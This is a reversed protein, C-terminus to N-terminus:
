QALNSIREQSTRLWEMFEDAPVPKSFLYGQAEDCGLGKLLRNQEGTEVGEAVSRINLSRALAIIAQVISVDDQDYPTDSVFSRDIKLADIPFRKLYTMSSYGTGFDDVSISVGMHHLQHMIDAAMEINEVLLTETIEVELFNALTGYQNQLERIADLTMQDRFQRASLNVSVSIAPIGQDILLQNFECAQKLVWIGVDVIQRSEELVPIFKDPMMLGMTKSHWRLLAEMGCVKETAVNIRPQYYVEFENNSLAQSLKNQIELYEVAHATMDETFYQYCNGGRAKARYMAIDANKLLEDISDGDDPFITIGISTSPTLEYSEVFISEALKEIVKQAIRNIDDIDEIDEMVITFEDGGLRAITDGKRICLGIREAVVRLLQDGVIHGLSDNVHKFKDMDLFLVAVKKDDRESKNIAHLLRDRLLTRNPLDTLADHTAMFQLREQVRIRESIDKGTAVYNTVEGEENRIPTITKEEYYLSGDKRRNIFVDSFVEGKKITTWLRNYFEKDHEGSKFIAPTNGIVDEAAYGTVRELSPNVYEIIGEKNAITVIDDTQDIASSLKLMQVESKRHIELVEKLERNSQKLEATRAAVHVELQEHSRRLGHEANLRKNIETELPLFVMSTLMRWLGVGLILFLVGAVVIINNRLKNFDTLVNSIDRVVIVKLIAEGNLVISKEIRRTHLSNKKSKYSFFKYGNNAVLYVETDLDNDSVWNTLTAELETFKKNQYQRKLIESLFEVDHEAESVAHNLTAAHQQSLLIVVAAVSFLLLVAVFGWILRSKKIISHQKVM